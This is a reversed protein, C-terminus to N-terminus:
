PRCGAGREVAGLHQRGCPRGAGCGTGDCQIHHRPRQQRRQGRRDANYWYDEEIYLTHQGVSLGATSISNNFTISAGAALSNITDYGQYNTESVQQDITIGSWHLGAQTGGTNKVVYSFNLTAGQVVSLPASISDVM